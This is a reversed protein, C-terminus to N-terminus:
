VYVETSGFNSVKKSASQQIKDSLDIIEIDDLQPEEGERSQTEFISLADDNDYQSVSLRRSEPKFNNQVPVTLNGKEM